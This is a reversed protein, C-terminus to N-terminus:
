ECSKVDSTFFPDDRLKLNEASDLKLKAEEIDAKIATILAELSDFNREPRLFGVICIKLTNGYLDCNYNHLIHTEVSKEKNNYFPNWGVSMVMKHVEGNNINAWGYYAGTIFSEPLSRVVELPFNATPIGLEKSGRKFGPTVEGSVFLPLHTLMNNIACDISKHNRNRLILKLPHKVRRTTAGIAQRAFQVVLLKVQDM